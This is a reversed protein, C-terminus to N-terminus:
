PAHGAACHGGDWGNYDFYMSREAIIPKDSSLHASLQLGYGADENVFITYRGPPVKRIKERPSEGQINYTVTVNAEESSTNQICIWEHFNPITCGEAFYWEKGPSSIGLEASGGQWGPAGYGSYSFYLPRECIIAQDSMIHCSVDLDLGVEANVSLTHRSNAPIPYKKEVAGASTAYTVDLNAVAPNPNQICIWEEFGERTCGEAFYWDTRPSSTGMVVHGGSWSGQNYIAGYDFYMPRECVIPTGSHVHASVDQGAGVDANVNVSFRSRPPVPYYKQQTPAGATIYDIYVDAQTDTPNQICLWEEFGQRTCGEAFYWDTRPSTVGFTVHGGDWSYGPQGQKYSFYMPREAYFEDEGWLLVSVDQGDGVASNVNISNRSKAAVPYTEEKPGTGFLMYTAHVEIDRDGPNQLCIYESFGERTCGEAFYWTHNAGPPLPVGAGSYFDAKGALFDSSSSLELCYIDGNALIDQNAGVIKSGMSPVNYDRTFTGDSTYAKVTIAASSGGFNALTIWQEHREGVSGGPLYFKKALAASGPMCSGGTCMGELHASQYDFYNALECAVPRDAHVRIAVKKDAGVTDNVSITLRSREQVVYNYTVPAAGELLFNVSVSASSDGPNWTALWAEFGSGTSVPPFFWDTSTSTAGPAIHMGTWAGKNNFRMTREAYVAQPSDLKVAVDLGSGADGNVYIKLRSGKAVQYNRIIPPQSSFDYQVTCDAAVEGPNIINIWEEFGAGTWGEAFYFSTSLSSAGLNTEIGGGGYMTRQAVVPQTSSIKAGAEKTTVWQGLNLTKSGHPGVVLDPGKLPGADTYFDIAVSAQTGGPNAISILTTYDGTTDGEAFYWTTAPVAAGAYMSGGNNIGFDETDQAKAADQGFVPVLSLALLLFIAIILSGKSKV